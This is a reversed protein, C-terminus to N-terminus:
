PCALFKLHLLTDTTIVNGIQQRIAAALNADPISVVEPPPLLASGDIPFSGSWSINGQVDIMELRVRTSGTGLPIVFEVPSSPPDNFHQCAIRGADSEYLEYLQVQHLGEAGTIEFRLRILNPSSVLIPPLIKVKPTFNRRHGSPNFHHHVELFQATCESIWPTFGRADRRYDHWLGFAHRLEHSTLYDKRRLGQIANIVAVGDIGNGVSAVGPSGQILFGSDVVVLYINKSMDFQEGIEKSVKGFTGHEYYESTFQGKVHHVVANGTADTEIRFTKRGYGYRGM